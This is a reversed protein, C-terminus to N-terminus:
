RLATTMLTATDPCLERFEETGRIPAPADERPVEAFGLRSFYGAADTTLLYLRTLGLQRSQELLARCLLGAIGRGRQGPVVVLSRLLGLPALTELGIAGVVRGGIDAVLFCDLNGPLSTPLAAANLLAIVAARDSERGARLRVDTTDKM